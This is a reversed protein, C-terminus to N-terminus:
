RANRQDLARSLADVLTDLQQKSHNAMLTIRIIAQGKPVTPYRIEPAYIGEAALQRSTALAKPAPPRLQPQAKPM